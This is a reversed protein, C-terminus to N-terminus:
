RARVPMRDSGLRPYVLPYEPGERLLTQYVENVMYLELCPATGVFRLFRDALRSSRSVTTRDQAGDQRSQASVLAHVARRGLVM